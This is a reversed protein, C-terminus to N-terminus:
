NPYFFYPYKVMRSFVNPYFCTKIFFQPCTTIRIIQKQQYTNTQQVKWYKDSRWRQSWHSMSSLMSDNTPIGQHRFFNLKVFCEVILIFNEGYPLNQLLLHRLLWKLILIKMLDHKVSKAMTTMMSNKSYIILWKLLELASSQVKIYNCRCIDIVGLWKQIQVIAIM